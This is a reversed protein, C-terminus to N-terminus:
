PQPITIARTFVHCHHAGGKAIYQQHYDEAPWFTTAERIETRIPAAYVKSAGLTAKSAAALGAQEADHFFIAARYQTGQEYPGQDDVSTPDHLQWFVDLLQQYSVRQPDFTIDAVEIHGTDGRCVMEYTPADVTGGM